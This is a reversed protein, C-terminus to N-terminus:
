LKVKGGKALVYKLMREINYYGQPTKQNAVANYVADAMLHITLEAKIERQLAMAVKMANYTKETGYPGENLIMLYKSM